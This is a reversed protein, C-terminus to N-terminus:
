QEKKVGLLVTPCIIDFHPEYTDRTICKLLLVIRCEPALDKYFAKYYIHTCKNLYYLKANIVLITINKLHIISLFINLLFNSKLNRCKIAIPLYLWKSARFFLELCHEATYIKLQIRTSPSFIVFDALTCNIIQDSYQTSGIILPLHYFIM